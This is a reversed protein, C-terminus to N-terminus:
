DVKARGLCSRADQLAEEGGTLYSEWAPGAPTQQRLNTEASRIAEQASHGRGLGRQIDRLVYWRGEKFKVDSAGQGPRRSVSCLSSGRLAEELAREAEAALTDIRSTTSM